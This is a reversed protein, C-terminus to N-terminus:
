WTSIGRARLDPGATMTSTSSSLMARTPCHGHDRSTTARSMSRMAARLGAAM